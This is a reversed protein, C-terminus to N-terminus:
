LKPFYQDLDDLSLAFRYERSPIGTSPSSLVVGLKEIELWFLGAYILRAKILGCFRVLVEEIKSIVYLLQVVWYRKTKM